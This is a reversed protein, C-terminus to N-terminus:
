FWSAIGSLPSVFREPMAEHNQDSEPLVENKLQAAKEALSEKSEGPKETGPQEAEPDAVTNQGDEASHKVLFNATYSENFIDEFVYPVQNPKLWLIKCLELLEEKGIVTETAIYTGVGSLLKILAEYEAIGLPYGARRFTDFLKYFPLSFM